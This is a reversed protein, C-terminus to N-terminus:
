NKEYEFISTDEDFKGSILQKFIFTELEQQLEERNRETTQHLEKKVKNQLNGSIEQYLNYYYPNKLVM